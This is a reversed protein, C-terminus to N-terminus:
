EGYRFINRGALTTVTFAKAGDGTIVQVSVTGTLVAMNAIYNRGDVVVRAGAPIALLELRAPEPLPTRLRVTGGSPLVVTTQEDLDKGDHVRLRHEGASLNPINCPTTGKKSGDIEVTAGSPLSSVFLSTPRAPLAPPIQAVPILAPVAALEPPLAPAVPAPESPAAVVPESPPTVVPPTAEVPPAEVPPKPATIPTVPATAVVPAPDQAVPLTVPPKPEVLAPAPAPPVPESAPPKVQSPTKVAPIETPVISAVVAPDMAPKPPNTEGSEPTDSETPADNSPLTSAPQPDETASGQQFNSPDAVVVSPDVTVAATQVDSTGPDTAMAGRILVVAVVGIVALAVVGVFLVARDGSRSPRASAVAAKAAAAASVTADSVLKGDDWRLRVVKGCLALEVQTIAEVLAAPTAYRQNADKALLRSCLEAVPKPCAPV